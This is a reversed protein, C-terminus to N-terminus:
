CRRTVKANSANQILTRWRNEGLDLELGAAQAPTKGGLGQHPRIHNYYIRQGEIMASDPKKIARMVKENMSHETVANWCNSTATTFASFRTKLSMLM